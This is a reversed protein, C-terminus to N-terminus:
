KLFEQLGPRKKTLYKYSSSKCVEMYESPDENPLAEAFNFEPPVQRSHIITNDLDLILILKEGRTLETIKEKVHSDSAAISSIQDFIKLSHAKIGSESCYICVENYVLEHRCPELTILPITGLLTDELVSLPELQQWLVKGSIDSKIMDIQNSGEYHVKGITKGQTVHKGESVQKNWELILKTGGPIFRKLTINHPGKEM